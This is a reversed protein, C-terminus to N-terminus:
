WGVIHVAVEAQALGLGRQGQRRAFVGQLQQQAVFAVNRVGRRHYAFFDADGHLGSPLPQTPNLAPEAGRDRQDLSKARGGIEVDVKVAQHQVAHVPTIPEALRSWCPVWCGRLAFVM